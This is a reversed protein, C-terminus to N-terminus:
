TYDKMVRKMEPNDNKRSYFIDVVQRGGDTDYAMGEWFGEVCYLNSSLSNVMDYFEKYTMDNEEIFDQIQFMELMITYIDKYHKMKKMRPILALVWEEVAERISTERIEFVAKMKSDFSSGGGGGCGIHPTVDASLSALRSSRRPKSGLGVRHAPVGVM